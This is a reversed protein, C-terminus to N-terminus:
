ALLRAFVFDSYGNICVLRVTMVMGVSIIGVGFLILYDVLVLCFYLCSQKTCVSTKMSETDLSGKQTFTFLGPDKIPTSM